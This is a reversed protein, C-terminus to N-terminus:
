RATKFDNIIRETADKLTLDHNIYSPLHKELHPLHRSFVKNRIMYPEYGEIGQTKLAEQTVNGSFYFLYSHWLSRPAKEGTADEIDKITGGIFGSVSSILHHSSEHYLLELWNGRPTDAAGSSNMVVHTPFLSTYPRNRMNRRSSKAFFNIDVRIKDIQWRQRTLSSLTDVVHHETNTILQLNDDLIEQNSALHGQWFVDRYIKDVTLLQALHEKFKDPLSSFGNEDQAIVWQKFDSMYDSMRLDKDILNEKYYTIVKNLKEKYPDSLQNWVTEPITSKQSVESTLAEQQFFHHMNFWYHSYFVYYSTEGLYGPVKPPETKSHQGFLLTTGILLIAM